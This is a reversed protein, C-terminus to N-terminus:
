LGVIALNIPSSDMSLDDVQLFMKQKSTVVQPTLSFDLDSKKNVGLVLYFLIGGGNYESQVPYVFTPRNADELRSKASLYGRIRAPKNISIRQVVILPNELDVEGGSVMQHLIVKEEISGGLTGPEGRDGKEGKSGPEGKEGSLGKLNTSVGWTGDPNKFQLSTGDWRHEPIPSDDNVIVLSATTINGPAAGGTYSGLSLPIFENGEVLDDNLIRFECFKIGSEGSAWNLVQGTGTSSTPNIPEFDLKRTARGPTSSNSSNTVRVSVAGTTGETRIVGVKQTLWEGSERVRYETSRFSLKGASM